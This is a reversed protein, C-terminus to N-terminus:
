ATVATKAKGFVFDSAKVKRTELWYRWTYGPWIAFNKGGDQQYWSTCGTAWVTGDLSKQVKENFEAQVDARVDVYDANQKKMLKMLELIYHVQAEIMFIISNHGLGTNPGVLQFMNPYGTTTVGYYSEAGQKWDQMLDHGNIGTCSFNKMYIRPDTIFGTGYIICDAPREVGDKTVISNERIEAIGDTV